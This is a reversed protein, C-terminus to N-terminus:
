RERHNVPQLAHSGCDFYRGELMGILTNTVRVELVNVGSRLLSSPGSWRYPSWARVGLSVGNLLVEACEHFHVDWGAFDLEFEGEAPLEDVMLECEYSLTGAFYPFGVQVGGYLPAEQQAPGIIPKEEADFAVGFPGTMYLCGVLGDWDRGVEVYVTLRNHGLVLLGSIDTAQNLYDYRREPQFDEATLVHGNLEIGYEGSIAGREMMLKCASPLEKVAFSTEYRAHVPYDLKAEMPIGFNQEFRYPLRSTAALDACQDIFTKVQVVAAGQEDSGVTLKFEGFRVVNDEQAAIRWADACSVTLKCPQTGAQDAACNRGPAPAHAGTALRLGDAVEHAPTIQVAHADYAAFALEIAWGVATRRVPLEESGGDALHLKLARVAADEQALRGRYTLTVSQEHGEQNTLFVWESDDAYRRHQLLFAGRDPAAELLVPAPEAAELLALLASGAGAEELDQGSVTEIFLAKGKGHTREYMRVTPRVAEEGQLSSADGEGGWYRHRTAHTLGFWERTDAEAEEWEDIAEYPLLGMGIVTGGAEVFRQLQRWAAAELNSIPPLVLVRYEADGIRIAGDAIDADALLEPDLHDFDRQSRLLTKAAYAWDRKLRELRLREAESGGCYRFEHFPNGMHTWFSTTPDLLAVAALSQSESMLRALRGTYDALLRFHPWYPNQLFQSPPADHKALGDATYYFAHFNFMNIGLAALRDIMWKADQLNMSWGVSHFCEVLVRERGLQRALSSTMKPNYRLSYASKELIWELSRGLKEHGSDSGPIHSYRQTTMRVSPVEAIYDLGYRECWEHVQLHYNDRLLEHISQYFQYRLRSTREGSGILLSPLQAHLDAGYKHRMYRAIVPSWPVHGLLGIEDTFMGKVIATLRDGLAEAYKQHTLEIFTRMAEKHLPDVFTGYYKFEGVEEEIFAFVQWEGSGSPAEWRMQKRPNYTFYRKNNYATLGVKQFVQEVQLNGVYAAVDVASSWDPEGSAADVPAAKAYLVEGWPLELELKGGDAIRASRHALLKHKADPHRVLVEGGAIGSPYPYEDYLRVELGYQAALDVAYRVKDFWSESLYPVQLGQRPCIFFGGLGKDAMERIQREMEREDMEGNWFWFPQIRYASSPHLDLKLETM